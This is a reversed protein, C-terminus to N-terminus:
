DKKRKRNSDIALIIPVIKIVGLTVGGVIVITLAISATRKLTKVFNKWWDPIGDDNVIDDKPPVDDGKENRFIGNDVYGKFTNGNIDIVTVKGDEDIVCTPGVTGDGLTTSANIITGSKDLYVVSVIADFELDLNKTYLLFMNNRGAEKLEPNKDWNFLWWDTAKLGTLYFVNGLSDSSSYTNNDNLFYQAFSTSGSSITDTNKSQRIRGGIHTGGMGSSTGGNAFEDETITNSYKKGDITYHFWIATIKNLYVKSTNDYATFALRNYIGLRKTTLGNFTASHIQDKAIYKFAYYTGFSVLRTENTSNNKFKCSTINFTVDDKSNKLSKVFEHSSDANFKKVNTKTENYTLASELYRSNYNSQVASNVNIDYKDNIRISTLTYAKSSNGLYTLLGQELDMGDFIFPMFRTTKEDTWGYYMRITANESFNNSTGESTLVRITEIYHRYPIEIYLSGSYSISGDIYSTQYGLYARSNSSGYSVKKTISSYSLYIYTEGDITLIPYDFSATDTGIYKTLFDDIGELDIEIKLEMPHNAEYFPYEFFTNIAYVEEIFSVNYKGFHNEEIVYAYGFESEKSTKCQSKDKDTNTLIYDMLETNKDYQTVNFSSVDYTGVFPDDYKESGLFTEDVGNHEKAGLDNSIYGDEVKATKNEANAEITKSNGPVIAITTLLMMLPLLLKKIM